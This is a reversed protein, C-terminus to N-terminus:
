KTLIITILCLSDISIKITLKHVRLRKDIREGELNGEIMDGATEVLIHEVDSDRRKSLLREFLTHAEVLHGHILVFKM